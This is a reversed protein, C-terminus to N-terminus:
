GHDETGSPPALYKGFVVLDDGPAYYDRIRAVQEYALAAYFARTPAYDSRSSTEVIVLTGGAGAAKSSLNKQSWKLSKVL